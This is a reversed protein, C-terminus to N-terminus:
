ARRFSGTPDAPTALTTFCPPWNPSGLPTNPPTTAASSFNVVQQCYLAFWQQPAAATV